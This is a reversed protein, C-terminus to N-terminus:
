RDIEGAPPVPAPERAAPPQVLRRTHRDAAPSRRAALLVRLAMAPNMLSGPRAVLNQVRLVRLTVPVSTHCAQIVKAIYRNILDTGFPRTGSTRPDAFDAGAAIRWPVGIVRAARRYFDPPLAPSTPGHRGVARGLARAQLAASSMGQGYVPNFSCIADGLVVFGAPSRKMREVHRRQSTPMRHTLVPTLAESRTLIDAPVPSPLTRAFDEFGAQDTPPVDGHFAGLTVIWRDGEVPMVTGIRHGRAPDGVILALVDGREDARRRLLQTGYAMDLHITSVEPAPFGQKSLHDLFRTNRGTCGVVLDARHEAGNCRVGTARGDTVILSDVATQDTISVNPRDSLLRRRISGELLPRSMSMAPHGSDPMRWHAGGQHWLLDVGPIPVAGGSLLDDVLEPFWDSFLRMGAAMLVHAHRGQPVGRRVVPEEPLCDRELITVQDFHDSLVRATALGAISAGIVIAKGGRRDSM